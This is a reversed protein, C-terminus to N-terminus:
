RASMVVHSYARAGSRDVGGLELVEEVVIGAISAADSIALSQGSRVTMNWSGGVTVERFSVATRLGTGNVLQPIVGM